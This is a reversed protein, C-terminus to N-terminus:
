IVWLLAVVLETNSKGLRKVLEHLIGLIDHGGINRFESAFSLLKGSKALQNVSWWRM